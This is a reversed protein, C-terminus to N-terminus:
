LLCSILIIKNGLFKQAQVDQVLKHPHPEDRSHEFRHCAVESVGAVNVEQKVNEITSKNKM